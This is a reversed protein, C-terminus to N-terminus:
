IGLNERVQKLSYVRGAKIDALGQEIGKIEGKSLPEYDINGAILREIVDDISEKPYIKMKELKARVTKRIQVTTTEM